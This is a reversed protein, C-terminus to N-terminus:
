SRSQIDSALLPDIIHKAFAAWNANFVLSGEHYYVDIPDRACRNTAHQRYRFYTSDALLHYHLSTTGCDILLECRGEVEDLTCVHARKLTVRRRDYFPAFLSFPVVFRSSHAAVLSITVRSLARWVALLAGFTPVQQRTSPPLHWRALHTAVRARLQECALRTSLARSVCTLAVLAYPTALECV